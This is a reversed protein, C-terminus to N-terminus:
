IASPRVSIHKLPDAVDVGGAHRVFGAPSFSIGHCVCVIKVDNGRTFRYLYGDVKKGNPGNGTTSCPPMYPVPAAPAPAPNQSQPEPSGIFRRGAAPAPAPNQSQPEPSGIFRRGAAPAPAPNQSQSEPSEVGSTNGSKYEERPKENTPPTKPLVIQEPQSRSEIIGGGERPSSRNPSGAPSSGVTSGNPGGGGGGNQELGNGFSGGFGYRGVLRIVSTEPGGVAGVFRSPATVGNQGFGVPNLGPGSELRALGVRTRKYGPEEGGGINPYVPFRTPAGGALNGRSLSLARKLQKEDKKKKAEMRRMAHVERKRKLDEQGSFFGLSGGDSRLNASGPGSRQLIRRTTGYNGGLSLGLELEVPEENITPM